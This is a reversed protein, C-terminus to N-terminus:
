GITYTYPIATLEDGALQGYPSVGNVLDNVYRNGRVVIGSTGAPTITVDITASDGPNIVVPSFSALGSPVISGLWLDGTV